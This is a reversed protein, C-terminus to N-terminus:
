APEALAELWAVIDARLDAPREVRVHDLHGLLWSRFAQRHAVEVPLVIWGDDTTGLPDPQDLDDGVLQAFLPDVAVHAVVPQEDGLRMPEPLLAAADYDEPPDHSWPGAAELTDAAIRDVRFFRHEGTEHHHGCLYWFGERFLLRWADVAREKDAHIFRVATKESV